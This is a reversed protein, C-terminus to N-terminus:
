VTRCRGSGRRSGNDEEGKELGPILSDGGVLRKMLVDSDLRVLYALSCRGVRGQQGPVFAVRHM